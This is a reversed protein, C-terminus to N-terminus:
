SPMILKYENKNPLTDIIWLMQAFVILPNPTLIITSLTMRLFISSLQYENIPWM